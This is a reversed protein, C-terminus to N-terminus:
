LATNLYNEIKEGYQQLNEILAQTTATQGQDSPSQRLSDLKKFYVELTLFGEGKNDTLRQRCHNQWRKKKM